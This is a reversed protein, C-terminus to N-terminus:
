AGEGSGRPGPRGRPAAVARGARGAAAWAEPTTASPSAPATGEKELLAKVAALVAAVEEESVSAGGPEPPKRGVGRRPAAPSM